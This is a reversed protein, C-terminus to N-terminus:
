ETTIPNGLSDLDIPHATRIINKEKEPIEALSKMWKFNKDSEYMTTVEKVLSLKNLEACFDRQVKAEIQHRKINAEKYTNDLKRVMISKKLKKLLEYQIPVGLYYGDRDPRLSVRSVTKM